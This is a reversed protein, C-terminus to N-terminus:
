TPWGSIRAATGDVTGEPMGNATGEIVAKATGDAAGIARQTQLSKRRVKSQVMEQVKQLLM